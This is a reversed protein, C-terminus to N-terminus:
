PPPGLVRQGGWIHVAAQLAALFSRMYSRGYRRFLRRWERTLKVADARHDWYVTEATGPAAGRAGEARGRCEGPSGAAEDAYMAIHPADQEGHIFPAMDALWAGAVAVNGESAELVNQMDQHRQQQREHTVREAPPMLHGTVRAGTTTHPNGCLYAWDLCPMPPWSSLLPMHANCRCGGGLTLEHVLRPDHPAVSAKSYGNDQSQSESKYAGDCSGRNGIQTGWLVCWTVATVIPAKIPSVARRTARAHVCTHATDLAPAHRCCLRTQGPSPGLLSGLRSKSYQLPSLAATPAQLAEQTAPSLLHLRAPQPLEGHIVANAPPQRGGSGRPHHCARGLGRSCAVTPSCM